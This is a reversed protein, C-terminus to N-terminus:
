DAIRFGFDSIREDSSDALAPDYGSGATPPRDDMRRLEARAARVASRITANPSVELKRLAEASEAALPGIQGLAKVAALVVQESSDELRAVLAPVADAAPPGIRGLAVAARRRILPDRRDLAISLTPVAAAAGPGVAGLAEVALAALADDEDRTMTILFPVVPAAVPGLRILAGCATLRIDSRPPVLSSDGGLPHEDRIMSSLAHLGATSRDSLLALAFLPWVRERPNDTRSAARLATTIDATPRGLRGLVEAVRDRVYADEDRLLEAVAEICGSDTAGILGVAAAARWRVEADDDNLASVLAPVAPRAAPGIRGLADAAHQRAYVERHRLGEVLAPVAPAAAAGM